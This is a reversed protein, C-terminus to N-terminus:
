KNNINENNNIYKNFMLHLSVICNEAFENTKTNELTMTIKRM